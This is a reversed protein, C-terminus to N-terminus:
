EKKYGHWCLKFAIMDAEEEFYFTVDDRRYLGSCNENCWETMDDIYYMPLRNSDIVYVHNRLMQIQLDNSLIEWATGLIAMSRKVEIM